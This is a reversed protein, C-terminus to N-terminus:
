RNEVIATTRKRIGFLMARRLLLWGVFIGSLNLVLDDIDLVGWSTLWQTLEILIILLIGTIHTLLFASRRALVPILFGYPVFIVINGILNRLSAKPIINQRYANLFLKITAFPELNINNQRPKATTILEPLRDFRGKFLIISLLTMLYLVFIVHLIARKKNM